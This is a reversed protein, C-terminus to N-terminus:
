VYARSKSSGQSGRLLPLMELPLLLSFHIASAKADLDDMFSTPLLCQFVVSKSQQFGRLRYVGFGSIIGGCSSRDCAGGFGM